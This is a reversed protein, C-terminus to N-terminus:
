KKKNKKRKKMLVILALGICFSLATTATLISRDNSFVICEEVKNPNYKIMEDETDSGIKFTNVKCEYNNVDVYYNYIGPKIYYGTTVTYGKSKINNSILICQNILVFLLGLVFLISFTILLIRNKKEEKM